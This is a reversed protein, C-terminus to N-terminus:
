ILPNVPADSPAGDSAQAQVPTPVADVAARTVPVAASAPQTHPGTLAAQIASLAAATVQSAAQAGIAAGDVKQGQAVSTLAVQAAVGVAPDIVNDVIGALTRNSSTPRIYLAHGLWGLLSGGFLSAMLQPWM